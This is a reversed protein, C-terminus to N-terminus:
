PLHNRGEEGGEHSGVQVVAELDPAGACSLCLGTTTPGSSVVFTGSVNTCSHLRSM